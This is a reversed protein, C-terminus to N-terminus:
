ALPRAHNGAVKSNDPIDKVVVSGAGIIVNKGIKIGERVVSKAGVLFNECFRIEGLVKAEKKLLLASFIPQIKLIKVLTKLNFM